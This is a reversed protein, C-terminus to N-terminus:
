AHVLGQLLMLQADALRDDDSGPSDISATPKRSKKKPAKSPAPASAPMQTPPTQQPGPGILKDFYYQHSHDGLLKDEQILQQREADTKAAFLRAGRVAVQEPTDPEVRPGTPINPMNKKFMRYRALHTAEDPSLGGRRALQDSFEKGKVPDVAMNGAERYNKITEMINLAQDRAAREQPSLKEWENPPPGEPTRNDQVPQTTPEAM